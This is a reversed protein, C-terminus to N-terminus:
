KHLNQLENNTLRRFTKSIILTDDQFQYDLNYGRKWVAKRAYYSTGMIPAEYYNGYDYDYDKKQGEIIWHPFHQLGLMHGVEHTICDSASRVTGLNPISVLIAVTDGNYITGDDSIGGVLRGHYWITDSTIVCRVRKEQPFTYFLSDDTTIVVDWLNFYEGVQEQIAIKQPEILFSPNFYYRGLNEEECFYGNFSLLICGKGPKRESFMSSCSAFM